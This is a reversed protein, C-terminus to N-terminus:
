SERFEEETAPRQSKCLRKHIKWHAKQCETSCYKVLQCGSCVKLSSTTQLCNECHKNQEKAFRSFEAATIMPPITSICFGHHKDVKQLKYIYMIAFANRIFKMMFKEAEADVDIGDLSAKQIMFGGSTGIKSKSKGLLLPLVKKIERKPNMSVTTSLKSHAMIATIRDLDALMEAADCDVAHEQAYTTLDERLQLFEQSSRTGLTVTVAKYIIIGNCPADPTRSNFRSHVALDDLRIQKM